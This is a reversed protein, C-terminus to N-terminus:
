NEVLEKPLKRSTLIVRSFGEHELLAEVLWGWREDKWSGDSTLLNELNDLAILISNQELMESLAPLWARFEEPRDVLHAMKFGPLQKEMDLALRTLAVQIDRDKKPAEHWVFGRFRPSRRQHYALELACATKGAGAM